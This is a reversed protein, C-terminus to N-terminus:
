LEGAVWLDKGLQQVCSNKIKVAKRLGAIKLDALLPEGHGGLLIPAMYLSLRDVLGRQVFRSHVTPGGEVLLHMIGRKALQRLLRKLDIRGLANARCRMVEAGHETLMRERMRTAEHTAVLLTPAESRLRLVRAAPSIHLRSDLIIRIPDHGKKKGPLRTTLRPDDIDVTGRGVMIADVQDRLQHVHDRVERGTLWQSEGSTTAVIGDLSMAAKLTVFPRKEKIFVRYPRYFIDCAEKLVGVIIKVGERRLERIGSGNVRAHPDKIGVVVQKIGAALIAEVCPPTKGQHSCPELSVYLTAGKAAGKAKRLALIEAHPGGAKRHYGTAVVKDRKVIVAGVPPNPATRGLGKAAADLALQMYAEHDTM